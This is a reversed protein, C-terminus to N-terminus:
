AAEAKQSQAYEEAIEVALEEVEDECKEIWQAILRECYHNRQYAMELSDNTEFGVTLISAVEIEADKYREGALDSLILDVLTCRGVRKGASLRYALEERAQQRFSM